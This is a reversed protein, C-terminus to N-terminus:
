RISSQPQNSPLSTSKRQFRHRLRNRRLPRTIFWFISFATLTYMGQAAVVLNVMPSFVLVVCIYAYLPFAGIDGNSCSIALRKSLAGFAYMVLVSAWGFDVWLPGYFSTFVGPRPFLDALLPQSGLGFMEALKIYPAFHLSGFSFQQSDQLNWLLQFEFIGHIFYQMTPLLGSLLTSLTNNIRMIGEIEYSPPVTYAYGSILVSEYISVGIAGLRLGFIITFLVVVIIAILASPLALQKPALKGKHFILSVSFYMMALCVFMYVRSYAFLSDIAPTFFLVLLLLTKPKSKPVINSAFYAILAAYAFPYLLAGLLGILSTSTDILATRADMGYLNAMGRVLHRDALRLLNGLLALAVTVKFIRLETLQTRPSQLGDIISRQRASDHMKSGIVFSITCIFIFTLSGLTISVTPEIPAMLYITGVLLYGVLLIYEPYYTM